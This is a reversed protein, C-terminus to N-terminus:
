CPLSPAAVYCRVQVTVADAFPLALSSLLAQTDPDVTISQLCAPLHFSAFAM